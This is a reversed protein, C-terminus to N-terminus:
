LDILDFFLESTYTFAMWNYSLVMMEEFSFVLLVPRFRESTYIYYSVTYVTSPSYIISYIMTKWIAHKLFLRGRKTIAVIDAKGSRVTTGLEDM